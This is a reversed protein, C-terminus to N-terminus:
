MNIHLIKNVEPKRSVQIRFLNNPLPYIIILVDCFETPIIGRRYDKSHESWVIHVEDNGLHRAQPEYFSKNYSASILVVPSQFFHLSVIISASKTHISRAYNNDANPHSRSICSGYVVDFLIPNNYRRKQKTAIWGYFWQSNGTGGLAYVFLFNFEISRIQLVNISKVEWALASIFDEYAQSGGTNSIISV